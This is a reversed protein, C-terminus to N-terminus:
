PLLVLLNRNNWVISRDSADNVGSLNADERLYGFQNRNNWISSRDSADVFHNKGIYNLDSTADGAIMAYRDDLQVKQLTANSGTTFDMLTSQPSLYVPTLTMVPLHNRHRIVVHYSGSPVRSLRLPSVGDMDVLNGDRTLLAPRTGVISSDLQDRIEVFVWDVIAQPGSVVLVSSDTQIGEMEAQPYYFGAMHQYPEELPLYQQARLDDRMKLSDTVYAGELFVKANLIPDPRVWVTVTNSNTYTISDSGHGIGASTIQFTVPISDNPSKANTSTGGNHFQIPSIICVVKCVEQGTFDLRTTDTRSISSYIEISDYQQSISNFSYFGYDVWSTSLTNGFHSNDMMLVPSDFERLRGKGVFAIQTVNYVPKDVGLKVIFVLSDGSSYVTDKTSITIKPNLNNKLIPSNRYHKSNLIAHYAIIDHDSPNMLDEFPATGNWFQNRNLTGDGNADAYKLNITNGLSDITFIANYYNGMLDQVLWNKSSQPFWEYPFQALCGPDRNFPILTINNHPQNIGRARTEARNHYIVDDVYPHISNTTVQGDNNVDGPLVCHQDLLITKTIVEVGCDTDATVQLTIISDTPTPNSFDIELANTGQGSIISISGNTIATTPTVTWNFNTANTPFNAIYLESYTSDYGVCVTSCGDIYASTYIEPAPNCNINLLDANEVVIHTNPSINITTDSTYCTYNTTGLITGDDYIHVDFAWPPLGNTLQILVSDQSVACLNVKPKGYANIVKYNPISFRCGLSDFAAVTLTDLNEINNNPTFINITSDQIMLGNKYFVYRDFSVTQENSNWVYYPYVSNEPCTTVFPPPGGDLTENSAGCDVICRSAIFLHFSPDDPAVGMATYEFVLKTIVIDPQFWAAGSETDPLEPGYNLNWMGNSDPDFQGVVAANTSDWYPIAAGSLNDADFIQQLWSSIETNSVLTGSADEATIKVQDQEIDVLAFGLTNAPVPADFDIEIFVRATIPTGVGFGNDVEINFNDEVDAQGYAAEMTGNDFVQTNNPIISSLVDGSVVYTFNIADACNFTGTGVLGGSLDAYSSSGKDFVDIDITLTQAICATQDPNIVDIVITYTGTDAYSINPIIIESTNSTNGNPGTWSYTALDFYDVYLRAPEGLCFTGDYGQIVPTFPEISVTKISSNHCVDRMRIGYTGLPLGAFNHSSQLPRVVPGLFLEYTYPPVGGSGQVIILGASNDCEIGWVDTIAPPEYVLIPVFSSNTISCGNNDSVTVRYMGSNTVVLTDTSSGDNWQYQYPPIGGVVDVSLTSISACTDITTNVTTNIVTPNLKVVWFDSMGNNNSIMGSQSNTTGALIYTGDSLAHIAVPVDNGPGGYSTEWVITGSQDLKVLWIDKGGYNQSVDGDSSESSAAVLYGGDDLPLIYHAIENLSGGIIAQWESNGFQDIKSLYAQNTGSAANQLGAIAYGYDKTSAANLGQENLTTGFSQEWLIKGEDSTLLTWQDDNGKSNNIDGDMSNSKGTIMLGVPPHGTIAFGADNLSGGYSNDKYIDGQEGIFVMWVFETGKSVSIDQDNSKSSGIITYLSTYLNSNPGYGKEPTLDYEIAYAIDDDNGGYNRSWEVVGTSSLKVVWYDKGGNNGQVMGGSSSSYGAVICGGDITPLVSNAKDESPGGLTKQWEISGSSNLKVVWYDFGGYNNGVDVDDSQTSGALFFGGDLAPKFDALEEIQSGGFTMEFQIEPIGEIFVIASDITAWSSFQDTITVFYKGPVPVNITPTTEGTSWQYDYFGSGGITLTNISGGGGICSISTTTTKTSHAICTYVSETDDVTENIGNMCVAPTINGNFGIQNTPCSVLNVPKCWFRILGGTGGLIDQNQTGILSNATSDYVWNFVDSFNGFVSNAGDVPEMNLLGINIIMPDNEEETYDLLNEFYSFEAVVTQGFYIPAPHIDGQQISPNNVCPQAYLFQTSLMMLLLAYLLNKM